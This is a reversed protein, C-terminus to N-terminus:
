ARHAPPSPCGPTHASGPKPPPGTCAPSTIAGAAAPPDPSPRFAEFPDGVAGSDIEERAWCEEALKAWDPHLGLDKCIDAVMESMPRTLVAGYVDEDDLRDMAEADLREIRGADDHEAEIVRRVIQSVRGKAVDERARLAQAQQEAAARAGAEANSDFARLAEILRSQLMITLRVARGVRANTLALANLDVGRGPEAAKAEREVALAIELGVEALRGLVQLQREILPRSWDDSACAGAVGGPPADCEPTHTLTDPADLM